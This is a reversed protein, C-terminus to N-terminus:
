GDSERELVNREIMTSVTKEYGQLGLLSIMANIDQENMMQGVRKVVAFKISDKEAADWKDTGKVHAVLKQQGWAVADYVASELKELLAREQENKAKGRMWLAAQGLAWSLVLGVVTVIIETWNISQM